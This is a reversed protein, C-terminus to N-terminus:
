PNPRRLTKFLWKKMEGFVLFGFNPSWDYAFCHRPFFGNKDDKSLGNEMNLYDISM